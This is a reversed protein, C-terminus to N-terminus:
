AAWVGGPPPPGEPDDTDADKLEAAKESIAARFRLNNFGQLVDSNLLCRQMVSSAFGDEWNLELRGSEVDVPYVAGAPFGSVFHMVEATDTLTLSFIPRALVPLNIGRAIRIVTEAADAASENTITEVIFVPLGDELYEPYEIQWASVGLEPAANNLNPVEPLYLSIAKTEM